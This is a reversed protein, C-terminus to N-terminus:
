AYARGAEAARFGKRLAILTGPRPATRAMEFQWVTRESLGALAALRALTLGLEIRRARCDHPTV